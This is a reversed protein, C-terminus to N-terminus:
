TVFTSSIVWSSKFTPASAVTTNTALISIQLFGYEPLDRRHSELVAVPLNGSAAHRDVVRMHKLHKEEAVALSLGESGRYAAAGSVYLPEKGDVDLPLVEGVRKM